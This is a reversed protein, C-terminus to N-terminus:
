RALALLAIAILVVLAAVVWLRAGLRTGAPPAPRPADEERPEPADQPTGAAEAEDEVGVPAAEGVADKDSALRLHPATRANNSRQANSM